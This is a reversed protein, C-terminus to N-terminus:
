LRASKPTPKKGIRTFLGLAPQGYWDSKNGRERLEKATQMAKPIFDNIYSDTIVSASDTFGIDLHTKFVVHIRKLQKSM